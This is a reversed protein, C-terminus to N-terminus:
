EMIKGMRELWGGVQSNCVTRLAYGMARYAFGMIFKLYQYILYIRSHLVAACGCKQIHSCTIQDPYHLTTVQRTRKSM